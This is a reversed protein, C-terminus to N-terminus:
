TTAKRSSIICERRQVACIELVHSPVFNVEFGAQVSSPVLPLATPTATSAMMLWILVPSPPADDSGRWAATDMDSM